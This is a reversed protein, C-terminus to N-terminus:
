QVKAPMKHKSHLAAVRVPRARRCQLHMHTDRVFTLRAHVQAPLPRRHAEQHAGEDMPLLPHLLGELLGNELYFPM